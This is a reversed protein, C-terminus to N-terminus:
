WLNVIEGIKTVDKFNFRILIAYSIYISFYISIENELEIIVNWKM